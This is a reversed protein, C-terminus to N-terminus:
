CVGHFVPNGFLVVRQRERQPHNRVVPDVEPEDVPSTVEADKSNFDENIEEQSNDISAGDRLPKLNFQNFIAAHTSQNLKM